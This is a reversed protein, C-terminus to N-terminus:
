REVEIDSKEQVHLTFYDGQREFSAYVRGLYDLVGDPYTVKDKLSSARRLRQQLNLQKWFSVPNRRSQGTITKFDDVMEEPIILTLTVPSETEVGFVSIRRRYKEYLKDIEM